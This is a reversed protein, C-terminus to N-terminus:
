CHRQRESERDRPRTCTSTSLIQKTGHARVYADERVRPAWRSMGTFEAGAEGARMVSRPEVEEDDDEEEEERVRRGEPVLAESRREEFSIPDQEERGVYLHRVCDPWCLERDYGM